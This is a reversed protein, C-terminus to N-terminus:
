SKGIRRLNHFVPILSLVKKRLEDQKLEKEFNDILVRLEQYISEPDM